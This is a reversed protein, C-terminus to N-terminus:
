DGGQPASAISEVIIAAAARRGEGVLINYTRCAAQTDMVEVGLGANTLPALVAPRPFRLRAGTGLVLVELGRRALPALHESTLAEFSSAAWADVTDPLVLLSQEHRVGNVIVYGAGYGNFLNLGPVGALHLKL